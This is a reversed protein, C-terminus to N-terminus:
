PITVFAKKYLNVYSETTFQSATVKNDPDLHVLITKGSLGSGNVTVTIEPTHFFINLGDDMNINASATGNAILSSGDLIKFEIKAGKSNASAFQINAKFKIQNNSYAPDEQFQVIGKTMDEEKDISCSNLLIGTLFLFLIINKM